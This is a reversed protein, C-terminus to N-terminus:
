ALAARTAARKIRLLATGRRSAEMVLQGMKPHAPELDPSVGHERLAESCVPGVSAVLVSAFSNRLPGAAEGAVQFLHFVQTASTFLAIDVQGHLIAEIAGRLPALDQPLAWRYIQVRLIRAGREELGRLFEPNEIGYEQVAVVKDRVPLREDLAALIERWTNPEPVAVDPELGIERLATVPKPGRAVLKARRLAAAIQEASRLPAAVKILTRLGVGTMLVVVDIRGGELAQIYDALERNDEVPVERMSPASIPVGGCRRILEAIEGARRSEFSVVRLGDFSGGASEEIRAM